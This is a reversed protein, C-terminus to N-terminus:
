NVAVVGAKVVGSLPPVIDATSGNIELASVNNIQESADYAVQALRSIPLAMGIPLADIFGAIATAVPGVIQSKVADSTVTITLSVTAILVTPPQLTFISGIPRVADIAASVTSLLSSPPSGSGDDVTVVFSGMATAGAASTNEQITYELGQQINAIAYGIAAPTARSRSNIFNQFRARFAPDSEANLGGQLAAANTVTDIGPLATALLTISGAQVNGADGHVQAVVPVSLAAVGAALLYGNQGASWAPNATDITVAYTQTGDGTRVLAGAPVLAAVTPTFRSFTVTGTAAVAPLRTLSLDAMWSDLDPGSSTAARTTQLVQLILWQMWLAISANAELVARLASGVSLDLLQATTSQVAASMNQVLTSFTQLSLQM